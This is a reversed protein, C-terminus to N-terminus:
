SSLHTRNPTEEALPASMCGDDLTRLTGEAGGLCVHRLGTSDASLHKCKNFVAQSRPAPPRDGESDSRWACSPSPRGPNGVHSDASLSSSCGARAM